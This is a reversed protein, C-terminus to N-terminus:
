YDYLIIVVVILNVLPSLQETLANKAKRDDCWSEENIEEYKLYVLRGSPIRHQHLVDHKNGEKSQIPSGTTPFDRM